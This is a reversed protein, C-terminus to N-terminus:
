CRASGSRWFDKCEFISDVNILKLKQNFEVEEGFTYFTTPCKEKVTKAIQKTDLSFGNDPLIEENEGRYYKDLLNM